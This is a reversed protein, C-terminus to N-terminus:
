VNATDHATWDITSRPQALIGSSTLSLEGQLRARVYDADSHKLEELIELAEQWFRRAQEAKGGAHYADGLHILMTTQYYGTQLQGILDVATHLSAIAQEYRGLHLQIYGVSDWTAAENLPDGGDMLRYVNLAQECYELAQTYNESLAHLYGVANLMKAVGLRYQEQRFLQLSRQAHELAEDLRGEQEALLTLENHVRAESLRDGSQRHLDLAKGCYSRAQAVSGLRGYTAGLDRYAHAEGAIDGVSHAAKIAIRQIVEQDHWYGGRDFFLWVAWPLQWAQRYFKLDYAQGIVALLVPREAAFWALAESSSTLKEPTVGRPPPELTVYTRAPNLLQAGAYATHLYHDLVRAIARRRAAESDVSMALSEAYTRILDHFSFRGPVQETVLNADILEALVTRAQGPPFAALSAVAAANIDPGPHLAMFRFVTAASVSLSSYAWSLLARLSNTSEDVPREDKRTQENRLEAVLAALDRAPEATVRAAAINLALPLGASLAIIEALPEPEADVRSAGLRHALLEEADDHALAELSLTRAENADTPATLQTRSTVLVKCTASGPLLPGIQDASSANDLVILMKRGAILSRYLAAQADLETPIQEPLVGLKDLLLRMAEVPQVPPSSPDYGRLNVYLQGDPFSDAFRSAWQLALETKGIGSAGGIGIIAEGDDQNAPDTMLSSLGALEAERGTFYEQSEPIQRPRVRPRKSGAGRARGPTLATGTATIVKQALIQWEADSDSMRRAADIVLPLARARAKDIRWQDGLFCAEVVDVAASVLRAKEALEPDPRKAWLPKGDPFGAALLSHRAAAVLQEAQAPDEPTRAIATAAMILSADSVDAQPQDAIEMRWGHGLASQHSEVAAVVENMRDSRLRWRVAPRGRGTARADPVKEFAHKYRRRVTDVTRRAVETHDALEDVTFDPVSMAGILVKITEIGTVDALSQPM